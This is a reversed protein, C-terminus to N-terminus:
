TQNATAIRNSGSSLQDRNSQEHDQSLNDLSLKIESNESLNHQNESTTTQSGEPIDAAPSTPNPDELPAVASTIVVSNGAAATAILNLTNLIISERKNEPFLAAYTPPQDLEEYSPPGPTPPPPEEVPTNLIIVTNPPIPMRRISPQPKMKRCFCEWLGCLMLICGCILMGLMLYGWPGYHELAASVSDVEVDKKTTSDRRLVINQTTGSNGNASNAPNIVNRHIWRNGQIAGAPLNNSNKKNTSLKKIWEHAIYEWSQHQVARDHCMTSDEDSQAEGRPCHQIGDCVLEEAVCMLPKYGVSMCTHQHPNQCFDDQGVATIIMQTRSLLDPYDGVPPNWVIRLQHTVLRPPPLPEGDRCPDIKWFVKRRNEQLFVSLMCTSNDKKNDSNYAAPATVFSVSVIHTTPAIIQLKCPGINDDKSGNITGQNNSNGFTVSLASGFGSSNLYHEVREKNCLAITPVSALNYNFLNQLTLYVILFVSQFSSM